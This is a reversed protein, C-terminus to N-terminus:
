WWRGTLKMGGAADHGAALWPSWVVAASDSPRSPEEDGPLTLLLVAGVALGVGGVVFGTTSVHAFTFADGRLAVGEPTCINDDVPCHQLSEDQKNMALIGFATGVGIGALGLAGVAVGAALQGGGGSGGTDPPPPPKPADVLEGIRLEVHDAGDKVKVKRRWTLKNPASAVIEHTGPDVPMENGWQARGVQEGDRKIVLGAIEFPVIIKLKSLQEVLADAREAAIDARRQQGAKSARTKAEVFNIWASATKGIKEFCNALNLQTGIARDLRMSEAFKGCAEDFQESKMLERGQDFLVQAAARNDDSTAPATAPSQATARTPSALLAAVVAAGLRM